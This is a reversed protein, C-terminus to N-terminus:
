RCCSRVSRSPCGILMCRRSRTSNSRHPATEFRSSSWPPSQLSPPREAQQALMAPPGLLWCTSSITLSRRPSGLAPFERLRRCWSRTTSSGSSWRASFDASRGPTHRPSPTGRDLLRYPVADDEVTRLRAKGRCAVRLCWCCAQPQRPRFKVLSVLSMVADEHVTPLRLVFVAGGGPETPAGSGQRSPQAHNAHIISLGLGSGTGLKHGDARAFREFIRDKDGALVGPGRDAVHMDVFAGHDLSM